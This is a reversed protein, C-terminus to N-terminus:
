PSANQRAKKQKLFGKIFFGHFWSNLKQLKMKMVEHNGSLNKRGDM